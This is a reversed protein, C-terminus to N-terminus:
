KSPLQRPNKLNSNSNKLDPITHKEQGPVSLTKDAASTGAKVSNGICM